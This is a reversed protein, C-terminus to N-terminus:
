IRHIIGREDVTVAIRKVPTTRHQGPATNASPQSLPLCQEAWSAPLSELVRPLTM